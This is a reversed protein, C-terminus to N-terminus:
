RFWAVLDPTTYASEPIRSLVRDPANQNSNLAIQGPSAPCFSAEGSSCPDEILNYYTTSNVAIIYSITISGSYTNTAQLDYALTNNDPTLSAAFYTATLSSNALCT